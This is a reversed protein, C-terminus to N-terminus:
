SLEQTELFKYLDAVKKLKKLVSNPIEIEFEDEISCILQIKTLSNVRLDKDISMNPTIDVGIQGTVNEFVKYLRDMKDKDLM